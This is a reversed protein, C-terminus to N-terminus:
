ARHAEFQSFALLHSHALLASPSGLARPDVASLRSRPFNYVVCPTPADRHNTSECTSLLLSKM